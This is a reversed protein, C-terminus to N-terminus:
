LFLMTHLKSANSKTFCYIILYSRTYDRQYRFTYRSSQIFTYRSSNQRLHQSPIVKLCSILLVSCGSLSHLLPHHLIFNFVAIYKCYM